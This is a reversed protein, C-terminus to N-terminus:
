GNNTTEDYPEKKLNERTIDWTGYSRFVHPTNVDASSCGVDTYVFMAM